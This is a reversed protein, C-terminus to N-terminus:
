PTDPRSLTVKLGVSADGSEFGPLTDRRRRGTQRDHEARLHAAPIAVSETRITQM